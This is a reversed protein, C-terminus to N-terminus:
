TESFHKQVKDKMTATMITTISQLKYRTVSSFLWDWPKLEKSSSNQIFICTGLGEDQFAICPGTIDIVWFKVQVWNVSSMLEM